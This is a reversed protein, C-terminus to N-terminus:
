AGLASTSRPCRERMSTRCCFPSGDAGDQLMVNPMCYRHLKSLSIQSTMMWIELSQRFPADCYYQPAVVNVKGINNLSHSACPIWEAKKYVKSLVHTFAKKLVAASDSVFGFVNQPLISMQTTTEVVKTALESHEVGLNAGKCELQICAIVYVTGICGVLVNIIAHGSTSTWEDTGIWM